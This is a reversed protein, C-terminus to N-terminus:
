RTVYLIFEDGVRIELTKHRDYLLGMRKVENVTEQGYEKVEISIGIRRLSNTVIGVKKAEFVIKCVTIDSGALQISMIKLYPQFIDFSYKATPLTYDEPLYWHNQTVEAECQRPTFYHLNNATNKVGKLEKILSSTSFILPTRWRFSNLLLFSKPSYWNIAFEFSDNIFITPIQSTYALLSSESSVRSEDRHAWVNKKGQKACDFRYEACYTDPDSYLKYSYRITITHGALEKLVESILVRDIRFGTLSATRIKCTSLFSRKFTFLHSHILAFSSEVKSFADDFSELVKCYFYPSLCMITKLDGAAHSFIICLVSTPLSYINATTPQQIRTNKLVRESMIRKVLRQRKRVELAINSAKERREIDEPKAKLPTQGM